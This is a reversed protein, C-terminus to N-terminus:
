APVAIIENYLRFIADALQVPTSTALCLVITTDRGIVSEAITKLMGTTVPNGKSNDPLRFNGDAVPNGHHVFTPHVEGQTLSFDVVKKGAAPQNSLVKDNWEDVRYVIKNDSKVSWRDYDHFDFD